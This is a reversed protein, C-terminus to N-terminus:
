ASPAPQRVTATPVETKKEANPKEAKPKEVKLTSMLVLAARVEM